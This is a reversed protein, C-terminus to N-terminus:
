EQNIEVVDIIGLCEKISTHIYIHMHSDKHLVKCCFWNPIKTKRKKTTTSYFNFFSSVSVQVKISFNTEWLM